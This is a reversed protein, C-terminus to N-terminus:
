AQGCLSLSAPLQINGSTISPSQLSDRAFGRNEFLDQNIGPEGNDAVTVRIPVTGSETVTAQGDIVASTGVISMSTLVTSSLKVNGDPQHLVM